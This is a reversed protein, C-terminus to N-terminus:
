GHHGTRHHSVHDRGEGCRCIGHLRDGGNYTHRRDIMQAWKVAVAAVQVLEARLRVPEDEAMAEFVEELLVLSMRRDDADRAADCAEKAIEALGDYDYPLWSEMELPGTGDPLDQVGWKAEQRAREQAVEALVNDLSTAPTTDQLRYAKLAWRIVTTMPVGAHSALQVLEAHLESNIDAAIRIKDNTEM